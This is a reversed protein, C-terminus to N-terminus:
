EQNNWLSFVLTNYTDSDQQLHKGMVIKTPLVWVPSVSGLVLWEFINIVPFISRDVVKPVKSITMETDLLPNM